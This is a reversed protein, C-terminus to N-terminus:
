GRGEPAEADALMGQGMRVASWSLGDVVRGNGDAGAWALGQGRLRAVGERFGSEPWTPVTLVMFWTRRALQFAM